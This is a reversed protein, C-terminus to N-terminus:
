HCSCYSRRFFSMSNIELVFKIVKTMVETPWRTLDEYRVVLLPIKQKLWYEHFDRWVLVEKKAMQAFLAAHKKRDEASLSTTHTSTTMLNFYSDMSDYPNRVLLVARSVPFPPTGMREPYHTKVFQVNNSGTAM